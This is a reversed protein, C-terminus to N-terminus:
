SHLTSALVSTTTEAVSCNADLVTIHGKPFTYIKVGGGVNAQSVTMAVATLTLVTQHYLNNGGEVATVNTGATGPNGGLNTNAPVVTASTFDWTGTLKYNSHPDFAGGASPAAM